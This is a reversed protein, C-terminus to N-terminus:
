INVSVLFRLNGAPACRQPTGESEADGSAASAGQNVCSYFVQTLEIVRILESFVLMSPGNRGDRVDDGGLPIGSRDTIILITTRSSQPAGHGIARRLIQQAAPVCRVVLVPAVSRGHEHREGPIRAELMTPLNRCRWGADSGLSSQKRPIV